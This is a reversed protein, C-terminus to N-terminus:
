TNIFIITCLKRLFKLFVPYYLYQDFMSVLKMMGPVKILNLPFFADKLKNVTLNHEPQNTNFTKLYNDFIVSHLTM